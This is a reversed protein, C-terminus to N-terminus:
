IEFMEDIEDRSLRVLSDEGVRVEDSYIDEDIDCYQSLMHNWTDVSIRRIWSEDVYMDEYSTGHNIIWSFFWQGWGHVNVFSVVGWDKSKELTFTEVDVKRKFIQLRLFDYVKDTYRNPHDEDYFV